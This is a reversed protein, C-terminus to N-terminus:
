ETIEAIACKPLVKTIKVRPKDGVQTGKIFIVFGDIKAVGDGKDGLSIIEVDYVGGEKVPVRM